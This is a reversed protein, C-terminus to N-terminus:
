RSGFKQCGAVVGGVVLANLFLGLLASTFLNHRWRGEHLGPLPQCRAAVAASSDDFHGSPPCVMESSGGEPRYGGVCVLRFPVGDESGGQWIGLSEWPARCLRESAATKVLAHAGDVNPKLSTSSEVVHPLTTSMSSTRGSPPRVVPSGSRAAQMQANADAASTPCETSWGIAGGVMPHGGPAPALCVDKTKNETSLCCPIMRVGYGIRYCCGMLRESTKTATAKTHESHASDAINVLANKQKRDSSGENAAHIITSAEDASLPCTERWGTAAGVILREKPPADLCARKTKNETRLCCPKMRSGFGIKFCCGIDQEADSTESMNKSTHEPATQCGLHKHTCCWKRKETTWVERTLCNFNSSDDANNRSTNAEGHASLGSHSLPSCGIQKEACCWVKKAATWAERTHCNFDQDDHSPEEDDAGDREKKKDDDANKATPIGLLIPAMQPCRQLGIRVRSCYCGCSMLGGPGRGFCPDLSASELSSCNCGAPPKLMLLQQETRADCTACRPGCRTKGDPHAEEMERCTKGRELGNANYFAAHGASDKKALMSRSGTWARWACGDPTDGCCKACVGGHDGPARCPKVPATVDITTAHSASPVGAHGAHAEGGDSAGETDEDSDESKRRRRRRRRRRPSDSDDSDDASAAKAILRLADEPSAPCAQSWGAGGGVMSQSRIECREKPLQRHSLCCPVMWSSFSIQFCCGVARESGADTVPTGDFVRPVPKNQLEAVAPSFALGGSHDGKANAANAASLAAQALDGAPHGSSLVPTGLAPVPVTPATPATPWAVPGPAAAATARLAPRSVGSSLAKAVEGLSAAADDSQSTASALAVAFAFGLLRPLRLFLPRGLRLRM